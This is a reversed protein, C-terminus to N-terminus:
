SSIVNCSPMKLVESMIIDLPSSFLVCNPFVTCVESASKLILWDCLESGAKDFCPAKTLETACHTALHEIIGTFYVLCETSSSIYM